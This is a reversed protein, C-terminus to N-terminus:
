NLKSEYKKLLESGVKHLTITMTGNTIRGNFIGYVVNTTVEKSSKFILSKSNKREGDMLQALETVYSNSYKKLEKKLKKIMEYTVIKPTSNKM